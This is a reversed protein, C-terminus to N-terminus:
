FDGTPARDKTARDPCTGEARLVLWFVQVHGMSPGPPAPDTARCPSSLAPQKLGKTGRTASIDLCRSAGRSRPEPGLSIPATMLGVQCFLLSLSLFKM